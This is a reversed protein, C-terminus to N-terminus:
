PFRSRDALDLGRPAGKSLYFSRSQYDFHNGWCAGSYGPSRQDILWQLAYVAKDKWQPDGTAQHLRIFGRALFGMGKTSRCKKIGILPRLNLPFRRVGQLLVTRLLKTEFTLPRLLPSSLGDFTDYAAYDNQVLWDSLRLIAEFIQQKSERSGVLHSIQNSSSAM